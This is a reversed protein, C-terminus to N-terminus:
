SKYFISFPTNWTMTCLVEDLCKKSVLINQLKMTCVYIQNWKPSCYFFYSRGQALKCLECSSLLTIHQDLSGMKLLLFSNQLHPRPHWLMLAHVVFNPELGKNVEASLPPSHYYTYSDRGVIHFCVPSFSACSQENTVEASDSSSSARDAKARVPFGLVCQNPPQTPGLALRPPKPSYVDMAGVPIRVGPREARLLVSNFKWGAACRYGVYNISIVLFAIVSIFCIYLHHYDVWNVWRNGQWM